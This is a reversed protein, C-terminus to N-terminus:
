HQGARMERGWPFAPGLQAGFCTPEEPAPSCTDLSLGSEWWLSSLNLECGPQRSPPRLHALCPGPSLPFPCSLAFPPSSLPGGLRGMDSGPYPFLQVLALDMQWHLVLGVAGWIGWVCPDMPGPCAWSWEWSNQSCLMRDLLCRSRAM